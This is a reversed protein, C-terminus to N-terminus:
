PLRVCICVKDDNEKDIKPHNDVYTSLTDIEGSKLISVFGLDNIYSNLGDSCLLFIDGSALKQEGSNIYIDHVASSQGNLVSYTVHTSNMLEAHPNNRYDNHVLRIYNKWAEEYDGSEPEPLNEKHHVFVSRSRAVRDTAPTVAKWIEGKYPLHVIQCDGNFAYHLSNNRLVCVAAVAGAL